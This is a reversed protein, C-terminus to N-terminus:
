KEASLAQRKVVNEQSENGKKKEKSIKVERTIDM